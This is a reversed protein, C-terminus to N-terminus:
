PAIIPGAVGGMVPIDPPTYEDAEGESAGDGPNVPSGNDEVDRTENGIDAGLGGDASIAPVDPPVYANGDAADTAVDAEGESAGDAAVDPPGQNGLDPPGGDWRLGGTDPTDQREPPVYADGKGDDEAGGDGADPLPSTDTGEPVHGVWDPSVYAGADDPQLHASADIVRVGGGGDSQVLVPTSGGGNGGVAVPSSGCASLGIALVGVEAARRIHNKLSKYERFNPYRPSDAEGKKVPRTKRSM